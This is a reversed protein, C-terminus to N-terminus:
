IKEEIISHSTGYTDEFLSVLDKTEKTKIIL